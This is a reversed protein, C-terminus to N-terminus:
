SGNWGEIEEEFGLTRDVTEMVVLPAKPLCVWGNESGSGKALYKAAIEVVVVWHLFSFGSLEASTTFEPIVGGKAIQNKCQEQSPKGVTTDKITGSACGYTKMDSVRAGTTGRWLILKAEPEDKVKATVTEESTPSTLSGKIKDDFDDDLINSKAKNAPNSDYYGDEDNRFKSKYEKAM